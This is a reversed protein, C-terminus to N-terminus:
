IPKYCFYDEWANLLKRLYDLQSYDLYLSEDMDTLEVTVGNGDDKLKALVEGVHWPYYGADAKVKIVGKTKNVTFKMACEGDTEYFKIKESMGKTNTKM